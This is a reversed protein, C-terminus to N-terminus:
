LAQASQPRVVRGMFLIAGTENHRILIIFPHDAHFKAKKTKLRGSVTIVEDLATVAAAETGKEDVKLVTKHTVENLKTARQSDHPFRGSFDAFDSFPMDMGMSVLPKKLKYGQELEIKPFHVDVEYPANSILRQFVADLFPASLKRELAKLGKRKDPLIAIMSIERGQYPMEIASAGSYRAYRFDSKQQMMPVTLTQGPAYFKAQQTNVEAFSYAWNAKLYATNVLVNRNDKTLQGYKFTKPILQNTKGSVWKNIIDVAQDPNNRYDVRTDTAGYYQTVTDLYAPNLTSAKDIFLANATKFVQGNRENEVQGLLTGMAQHLEAEPLTYRMVQALEQATQGKAGAFALGFATSISVPSIFLNEGSRGDEKLLTKYLELAFVKQGQTLSQVAAAGSIDAGIKDKQAYDQSASPTQPLSSCSALLSFAILSTLLTKM